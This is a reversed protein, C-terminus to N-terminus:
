PSGYTRPWRPTCCTFILSLREDGLGLLSEEEFNTM